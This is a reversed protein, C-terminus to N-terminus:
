CEANSIIWIMMMMMMMMMKKKKKKKKKEEEEEEEKNAGRASGPGVEQTGISGTKEERAKVPSAIEKDYFLAPPLPYLM